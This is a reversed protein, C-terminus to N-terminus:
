VKSKKMLLEYFDTIKPVEKGFLEKNSSYFANENHSENAPLGHDSMFIVLDYGNKLAKEKIEGALEDTERYLKLLKERNLGTEPDGYMHHHLDTRHFHCMLFNRPSVIDSELEEFLSRKRYDFERTDYFEVVEEPSYGMKLVNYPAKSVWFPSPNYGPVFMARSNDVQEFITDVALDEKMHKRDHAEIRNVVPYLAKRFDKFKDFFFNGEVKGEFKEVWDVTWSSLGEVGHEEYTKGTIFSAFLESTLLKGSMGTSNDIGGYEKQKINELEFDDILEKDMGDFAVILINM